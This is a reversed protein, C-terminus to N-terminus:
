CLSSLKRTFLYSIKIQRLKTNKEQIEAEYHLFDSANLCSITKWRRWKSARVKRWQFDGTIKMIREM